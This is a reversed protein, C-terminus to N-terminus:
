SPKSSDTPITLPYNTILLEKGKKGSKVNATSGDSLVRKAAKMTYQLDWPIQYYKSFREVLTPNDNYTIMWRHSCKMVEDAFLKHDFGRHMDGNNGYLNDKIDYPPDLFIFTNETNNNELMKSYDLNTIKLSKVSHMLESTKPLNKICNLTFNQDFALPAYSGIMAMGSYSTKNLIYWLCATHFEDKRKITEVIENRCWEHLLRGTKEASASPTGKTVIEPTSIQYTYELRKSLLYKVMDDSELYLTKWFCYVPYFLDNIWYDAHKNFQMLYLSVSAGGVFPDRFENFNKILYNDLFKLANSKGGPYRVCTVKTKIKDKKEM